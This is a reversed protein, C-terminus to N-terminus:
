RARRRWEELRQRMKARQDAHAPDNALNRVEDGDEKLNFLQEYDFEPWYV